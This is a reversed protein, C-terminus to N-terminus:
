QDAVDIRCIGSAISSAHSLIAKGYVTEFAQLDKLFASGVELPVGDADLATCRIQLLRDRLNM